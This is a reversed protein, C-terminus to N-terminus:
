GILEAEYKFFKPAEIAASSIVATWDKTHQAEAHAAATDGDTWAELLRIRNPEVTDWALSYEVFGQEEATTAVFGKAAETVEAIKAPDVRVGGYVVIM